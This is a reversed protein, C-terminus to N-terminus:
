QCIQKPFVSHCGGSIWPCIFIRLPQFHHNIPAWPSDSRLASYQRWGVPLKFCLGSTLSGHNLTLADQDKRLAAESCAEGRQRGREPRLAASCKAGPECLQGGCRRSHIRLAADQKAMAHVWRNNLSVWWRMILPCFRVVLCCHCKSIM